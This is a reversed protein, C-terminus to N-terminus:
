KALRSLVKLLLIPDNQKLQQLLSFTANALFNSDCHLRIAAKDQNEKGIVIVDDEVQIEELHKEGNSEAVLVVKKISQNIQEPTLRKELSLM